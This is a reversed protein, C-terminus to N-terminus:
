TSSGPQQRYFDRNLVAERYEDIVLLATHVVEPAIDSGVGIENFDIFAQARSAAGKLLRTRRYAAGGTYAYLDAWDPEDTSDILHGVQVKGRTPEGEHLQVPTWAILAESAKM